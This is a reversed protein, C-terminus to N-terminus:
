PLVKKMKSYFCKPEIQQEIDNESGSIDSDERAGIRLTTM